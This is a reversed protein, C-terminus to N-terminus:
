DGDYPAPEIITSPDAIPRVTWRQASADQDVREALRLRAERGFPEAVEIVLSDDARSAIRGQTLDWLQSPRGSDLGAVLLEAGKQVGDGEVDLVFPSDPRGCRLYGAPDLVWVQNRNAPDNRSFMQVRAGARITHRTDIVLGDHESVIQVEGAM